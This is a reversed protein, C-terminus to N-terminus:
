KSKLKKLMEVANSNKPNLELSKEYNIIANNNDGDVMYAEGLSDFTNASQPFAVTNLKFITIAEKVKNENMFQYGAANMENENLYYTNNKTLKEFESAPNSLKATVLLKFFDEAVSRKPKQYPKGDLINSLAFYVDVIKHTMERTNTLFIFLRNAEVDRVVFSTYGPISGDTMILQKKKGTSSDQIERVKWGYAVVNPSISFMTKKSQESVLKSSLMAATFKKLDETTSYMGGAPTVSVPTANEYGYFTQDYGLAKNKLISKPYAMGSNLMGLPNLINEKLLTEYSKGSINELIRGLLIYGDNSYRFGTGPEFLLDYEGIYKVLEHLTAFGANIKATLPPFNNGNRPFDSIDRLGATHTLLNDITIKDGKEKPYEPLYQSVKDTLHLKAKDVFQFILVSTFSKTISAIRYKTKNFNPINFELNAFGFAKNYITKNNEEVLITGSYQNYKAYLNLCEDIKATKTQSCADNCIFIQVVSLTYFIATLKNM